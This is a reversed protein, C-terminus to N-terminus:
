LGRKVIQPDIIEIDRMSLSDIVLYEIESTVIDQVVNVDAPYFVYYSAKYQKQQPPMGDLTSVIIRGDAQIYARGAKNSVEAPSNAMELAINNEYVARFLNSDGGNDSTEYTLASNISRYSTIGLGASRNFVDFTLYGLNDLPIFSSTRKSFRTLPM